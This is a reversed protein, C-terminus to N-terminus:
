GFSGAGQIKIDGRTPTVRPAIEMVDPVSMELSDPSGPSVEADITRLTFPVIAGDRGNRGYGTVTAQTVSGVTRVILSTLSTSQFDIDNRKDSLTVRGEPIGQ